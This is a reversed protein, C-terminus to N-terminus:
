HNRDMVPNIQQLKPTCASRGAREPNQPIALIRFLPVKLQHVEPSDTTVQISGLSTRQGPGNAKKGVAVLRLVLVVFTGRRVKQTQTM